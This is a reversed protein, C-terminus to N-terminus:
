VIVHIFQDVDSIEHLDTYHYMVSEIHTGLWHSIDNCILATEWQSPVFRSDARTADAHNCPFVRFTIVSSGNYEMMMWMSTEDDHRRLDGSIQNTQGVIQKPWCGSWCCNEMSRSRFRCLMYRWIFYIQSLANAHKPLLTASSKVDNCYGLPPKLLM